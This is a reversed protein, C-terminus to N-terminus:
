SRKRRVTVYDICLAFILLLGSFVTKVYTNINLLLMGNNFVNLICLGLFCGLMGGSGGGFSIGGLIAATMGSFQYVNIGQYSGSGNRALYMFGSVGALAGCNMFLIYSIKTPNIGSYKAATRNGGCLYIQRGFKTRSLMLGYVIMFVAMILVSFPILDFLKYSGIWSVAPEKAKITYGKTVLLGIGNLIGSTAMTVIFPQFNFVNIIVANLLGCLMGFAVAGLFAAYSPAGMLLLQAAICSAVSGVYGASLDIYGFILLVGSGIAMFSVLVITSLITNINGPTLMTRGLGIRLALQLVVILAVLIIVLSSIKSDFFRGPRFGKKANNEM